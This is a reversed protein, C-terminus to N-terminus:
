RAREPIVIPCDGPQEVSLVLWPFASKFNSACLPREDNGIGGCLDPLSSRNLSEGLRFRKFTLQGGERIRAQCRRLRIGRERALQEDFYEAKALSSGRPVLSSTHREMVMDDMAIGESSKHNRLQECTFRGGSDKILLKQLFNIGIDNTGRPFMPKANMIKMMTKGRNADRFSSEGLLLAFGLIGLAWCDVLDSDTTRQILRPAMFDITRCVPRAFGNDIQKAFGFGTLKL